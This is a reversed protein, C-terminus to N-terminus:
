NSCPGGRQKIWQRAKIFLPSVDHAAGPQFPVQLLLLNVESFDLKKSTQQLFALWEEGYKGAVRDRPYYVLAVRKLLESIQATAIQANNDQQYQQEYRALLQLAEKKARNQQYKKHWYYAMLGLVLIVLLTLFYWGPALPWWGIPAPLHIDKLQTLADEKAM